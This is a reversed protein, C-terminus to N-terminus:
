SVRITESNGEYAKMKETPTSYRNHYEAKNTVRSANGSLKSM